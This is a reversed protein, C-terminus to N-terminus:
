QAPVRVPNLAVGAPTDLARNIERDVVDLFQHPLYSAVSPM